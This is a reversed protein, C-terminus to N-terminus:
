FIKAFFEELMNERYTGTRMSINKRKKRWLVSMLESEPTQCMVLAKQDVIRWPSCVYNLDYFESDLILHYFDYALHSFVQEYKVKLSNISVLYEFKVLENWFSDVIYKLLFKLNEQM